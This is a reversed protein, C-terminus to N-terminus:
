TSFCCMVFCVDDLVHHVLPIHSVAYFDGVPWNAHALAMVLLSVLEDGDILADTGTILSMLMMIMM